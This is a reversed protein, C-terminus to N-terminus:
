APPTTAASARLCSSLLLSSSYLLCAALKLFASSYLFDAQSSKIHSKFVKYTSYYLSIPLTHNPSVKIIGTNYIWSFWHLYVSSLLTSHKTTHFNIVTNYNNTTITQLHDTFLIVLGLGNKTVGVHSLIILIAMQSGQKKSWKNDKEEEERMM